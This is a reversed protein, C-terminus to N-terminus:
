QLQQCIDYYAQYEEPTMQSQHAETVELLPVMVGAVSVDPYEDEGGDGDLEEEAAHNSDHGPPGNETKYRKRIM